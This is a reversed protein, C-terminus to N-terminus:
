AAEKGHRPELGYTESVTYAVLVAKADIAHILKLMAPYEQNDLLLMLTPNEKNKFRDFTHYLRVKRHGEQLAAKAIEEISSDSTVLLVKKRNLGTEVYSMVISTIVLSLIAWFFSDLGFVFINFIVVLADTILLGISTNLGFYKKFILPPITTGGSSANHRYLISVGMGFIASGFIISIMPDKVLQYTPVLALAAPLLMSGLLIKAFVKKGLFIYALILMVLNLVLVVLSRDLGIAYELLVGIGSVGGAAIQHPSLFLNISVALLFLSFSVVALQYFFAKVQKITFPM